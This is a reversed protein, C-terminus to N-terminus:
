QIVCTLYLGPASRAVPTFGTSANDEPMFYQVDGIKTSYLALGSPAAARCGSDARRVCNQGLGHASIFLVETTLKYIM